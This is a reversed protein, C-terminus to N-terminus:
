KATATKSLQTGFSGMILTLPIIVKRVEPAAEKKKPTLDIGIISFKANLEKEEGIEKMVLHAKEPHEMDACEKCGEVHKMSESTMWVGERQEGKKKLLMGCSVDKPVSINIPTILACALAATRDSEEMGIMYRDMKMEKLTEKSVLLQVEELNEKKIQETVDNGMMKLFTIMNLGYYEADPMKHAKVGKKLQEEVIEETAKQMNEIKKMNKDLEEVTWGMSQAMLAKLEAESMNGKMAAGILDEVADEKLGLEQFREKYQESIIGKAIGEIMEPSSPIAGCGAVSLMLVLSLIVAIIKKM